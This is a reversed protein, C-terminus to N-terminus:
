GNAVESNIKEMKKNVWDEAFEFIQDLEGHLCPVKLSVAVRASQYNGLNHTFSAEFGVECYPGEEGNAAAAEPPLAVSTENTEESIVNKKDSVTVGETATATKKTLKLGM